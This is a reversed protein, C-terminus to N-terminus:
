ALLGLASAHYSHDYYDGVSWQRGEEGMGAIVQGLDEPTVTQRPDAGPPRAILLDYAGDAVPPELGLAGALIAAAEGRNAPQTLWDASQIYAALYRAVADRNAAAWDRRAAAVPGVYRPVYRGSTDLLTFGERKLRIATAAEFLGAAVERRRLMEARLSSEEVPLMQCAGPPLGNDSLMRQLVLGHGRELAETVVRKGALDSYREVEPRAVLGYAPLMLRLLIVLPAGAHIARLIHDANQHGIQYDGALLRDIHGSASPPELLAVDLGLRAFEGRRQAVYVPWSTASRAAPEVRLRELDANRPAAEAVAM